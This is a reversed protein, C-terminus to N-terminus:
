LQNDDNMITLYAIQKEQPLKRFYELVTWEEDTIFIPEDPNSPNYIVPPSTVNLPSVTRSIAAQYESVGTIIYDLTTSYYDRLKVIVDLPPTTNTEYRAYTDRKIGLYDAITQQSQIKNDKRLKILREGIASRKTNSGM